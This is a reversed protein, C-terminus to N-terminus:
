LSVYAPSTRFFLFTFRFGDAILFLPIFFLKKKETYLILICWLSLFSCIISMIFTILSCYEVYFSTLNFALVPMQPSCTNIFMRHQSALLELRVSFWQGISGCSFCPKLQVPVLRSYQNNKSYVCVFHCVPGCQEVWQFCPKLDSCLM